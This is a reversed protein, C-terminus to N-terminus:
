TFMREVSDIWAMECYWQSLLTGCGAALVQRNVSHAATLHHGLLRKIIQKYAGPLMSLMSIQPENPFKIEWWNIMYAYIKKDWFPIIKWGTGWIPTMRVTAQLCRWCTDLISPNM